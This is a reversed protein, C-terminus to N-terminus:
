SIQAGNDIPHVIFPIAALGCMTPLTKDFLALFVDPPTHLAAAASELARLM